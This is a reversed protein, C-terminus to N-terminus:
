KENNIVEKFYESLRGSEYFIRFKEIEYNYEAQLLSIRAQRYTSQANIVDINKAVGAEYSKNAIELNEEANELSLEELKIKNELEDISLLTDEVEIDINELLDKISNNIKEIEKQQKAAEIKSKGGDYLPISGTVSVSWSEEDFFKEGEWNYSGNINIRPRQPIEKIKKNIEVIEKNIELALLQSSNEVATKYLENQNLKLDLNIEPRQLIYDKDSTILQNFRRKAIKLNNEATQLEEQAKRQEIQSQLLDQKIVLGAEFNNEVIRLHEAAIDLAEERIEVVGEAQLVGYYSQILSFLKDELISEYNAREAEIRYEAIDKNLLIENGYWVPQTLRLSNSYTTDSGETYNPINENFIGELNIERRGEDVKTYTSDLTVTPFFSRYALDINAEANEIDIRSNQLERNEEILIEVAKELNIEEVAAATLPFILLM